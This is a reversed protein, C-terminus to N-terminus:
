VDVVLGFCHSRSLGLKRDVGLGGGLVLRGLGRGERNVRANVDLGRDSIAGHSVARDSGGGLTVTSTVHGRGLGGDRDNDVATGVVGSDNLTHSTLKGLGTGVSLEGLGVSRTIIDLDGEIVVSAEKTEALSTTIGGARLPVAHALGSLEKNLEGALDSGTITETTIAGLSGVDAGANLVHDLTKMALGVKVAKDLVSDVVGDLVASNLLVEVGTTDVHRSDESLNAVDKLAVSVITSMTDSLEVGFSDELLDKSHDLMSKKISSTGNTDVGVAHIGGGIAHISDVVGVLTVDVGDTLMDVGNTAMNTSERGVDIGQVTIDGRDSAVDLGQAGLETNQLGDDVHDRLHNSTGDLLDEGLSKMLGNGRGELLGNDGDDDGAELAADAGHLTTEGGGAGVDVLLGRGGVGLLGGALLLLLLVAEELAEEAEGLTVVVALASGGSADAVLCGTVVQDGVLALTVGIHGSCCVYFAFALLVADSNSGQGSCLFLM